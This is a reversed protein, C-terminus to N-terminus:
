ETMVAKKTAWGPLRDKHPMVLGKSLIGYNRQFMYFWTAGTIAQVALVGGAFVVLAINQYRAYLLSGPNVPAEVGLAAAFSYNKWLLAWVAMGFLLKMMYPHARASRVYGTYAPPTSYGRYLGEFAFEYIVEVIFRLFHMAVDTATFGISWALLTAPTVIPREVLFVFSVIGFLIWAANHGLHLLTAIWTYVGAAASNPGCGCAHMFSDTDLPNQAAM